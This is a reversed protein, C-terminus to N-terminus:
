RVAADFNNLLIKVKGDGQPNPQLDTPKRAFKINISDLDPYNPNLKKEVGPQPPIVRKELMM